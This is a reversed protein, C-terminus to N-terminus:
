EILEYRHIKRIISIIKKADSWTESGLILERFVLENNNNKNGIEINLAIKCRKYDCDALQTNDQNTIIYYNNECMLIIDCDDKCFDDTPSYFVINMNCSQHNKLYFVRCGSWISHDDYAENDLLQRM